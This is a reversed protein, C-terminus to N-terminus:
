RSYICLIFGFSLAFYTKVTLSYNWITKLFIIKWFLYTASLVGELGGGKWPLFWRLNGNQNNSSKGLDATMKKYLNIWWRFCMCVGPNFFCNQGYLPWYLDFLWWFLTFNFMKTGKLFYPFTQSLDEFLVSLHSKSNTKVM